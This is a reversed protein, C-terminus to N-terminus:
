ENEIANKKAKKKVTLKLIFGDLLYLVSPLVLTIMLISVLTGKGLLIGVTAIANQSAILGIVFGCIMLILGSTFITPMATAVAGYLAEKKDMTARNEVYNTSMLIGYDITAGMLICTTVIYSMFFMPGTLLSTSMSIWIAGQIITVLIVPLSLSRFIVMVILFISIITFVTIFHNDYAFAKQLDYTSMMEGAVHADEGFIEKVTTNLYEVFATSEESEAPLDVSLLMRAYNKSMLLDTGSAVAEQAALVKARNEDSMKQKLLEHTNMHSTVFTLLDIAEVAKALAMEGAIAYKIYIGSLLDTGINADISISGITNKLEDIKAAMEEFDYKVADRLFEDVTYLDNIATRINSTMFIGILKNTDATETLFDLLTRGQIKGMPLMGQERFYLIYAQQVVLDYGDLSPIEIGFENEVDLAEAFDMALPILEDYAYSKGVADYVELYLNIKEVTEADSIYGQQIIYPLLDILAIDDRSTKGTTSYHYGGYLMFVTVSDMKVGFKESALTRFEAMSLPDEVMSKLSKVSEALSVLQDVKDAGILAAVRERQAVEVLFDFMTMFDVKPEEVRDYFYLGYVQEILLPDVSAEIPLRETIIAHFEEATYEGDMMERIFLMLRVTQLMKEDAMGQADPDETLLRDAYELFDPISIEVLSPTEYVHYMTLLLEVDESPLNLKHAAKEMDYLERVTNSYATYSKLVYKGDATQYDKLKSALAKEYQNNNESHPYLLVIASNQGFTESIDPNGSNKDTFSYVNKVQLFACAVVLLLAVPVVIVRSRFSLACFKKGKLVLAKKETKSMLKDFILLFAPLLTLSTVLAILIGKMLVIGIDFGIRFSMFLLAFLGAVTTLASASVPSVVQKIAMGMAVGHDEETLKATRYSHLLMISYDISLALQLIASVANTIYSIEGLLANTGMNLLIAVGSAALLILPEFWSKSTLLMIAIALCVSIVLIVPIEGEIAARVKAKEIIAGGYHIKGEFPTDLAARIDEVVAAGVESYEDGDVLIVFLAKGDKYSNASDPDFSVTLVNPIAALTDRVGLATERDVDEIMVQVNGTAGFEENLIGLSIKTETSEDLYDSINYNISVNRMFVLSLIAAALFFALVVYKKTKTFTFNM